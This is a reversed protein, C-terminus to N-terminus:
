RRATPSDAEPGMQELISEFVIAVPAAISIEKHIEFIMDLISTDTNSM